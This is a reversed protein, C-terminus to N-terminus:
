VEEQDGGREGKWSKSRDTGREASMGQRVEIDRGRWGGIEREKRQRNEELNCKGHRVEVQEGQTEM